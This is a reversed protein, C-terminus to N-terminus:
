ARERAWGAEDGGAALYARRAPALAADEARARGAAARREEEARRAAREEEARRAFTDRVAAAHGNAARWYDWRARMAALQPDPLAPFRERTPRPERDTDIRRGVDLGAPPAPPAPLGYTERTRAVFSETDILGNM